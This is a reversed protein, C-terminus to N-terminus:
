VGRDQVFVGDPVIDVNCCTAVSDYGHKGPRAPEVQGVAIGMGDLNLARSNIGNPGISDLSAQAASARFVAILWSLIIERQIRMAAENFYRSSSAYQFTM